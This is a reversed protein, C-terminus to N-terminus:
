FVLFKKWFVLSKWKWGPRYLLRDLDEVLALLFSGLVADVDKTM